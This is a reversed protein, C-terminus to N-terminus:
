GEAGPAKPVDARAIVREEPSVVAPAGPGYRGLLDNWRVRVLDAFSRLGDHVLRVRTREDDEWRVPEEVLRAGVRRAILIIEVDYGWGWLRQRSFIEHAMEREFLKFGCTFDSIGPVVFISAIGRFVSGLRERLAPQHVAIDSGHMRRSGIVVHNGEALRREFRELHDISVSQDADTLLLTRGRAALMGRRLAYGKGRNPTHRMVSLRLGLDRASATAVAGTDDASGDDVIVIEVSERRDGLHRAFVALTEPLRQSENYAPIM